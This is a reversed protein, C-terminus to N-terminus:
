AQAHLLRERFAKRQINLTPLFDLYERLARSYYAGHDFGRRAYILRNPRVVEYRLVIDSGDLVVLDVKDLGGEVLAALMDLRSPLRAGHAPVIALDIDSDATHRHEAMSGFLYVADVGPINRMVRAVCREVEAVRIM